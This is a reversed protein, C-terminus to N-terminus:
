ALGYIRAANGGFILDEADRGLKQRRIGEMSMDVYTGPANSGFVVREAGVDQVVFKISVPEAPSVLTTSLFVNPCEQAATVADGIFERYGMHDMIFPLNPYRKALAAIQLPHAQHSGSHINVVLKLDRAKDLLATVWPSKLSFGHLTPMLKLARMKFQNACQELEDVTQQGFQPNLTCCLIFRDQHAFGQLAQAMEANHPRLYPQPMWVVADMGAAQEIEWTTAADYVVGDLPASDFYFETDIYM